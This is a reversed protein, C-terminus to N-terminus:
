QGTEEHFWKVAVRELIELWTVNHAHLDRTLQKVQSAVWYDQRSPKGKSQALVRVVDPQTPPAKHKRLYALIAAELEPRFTRSPQNRKRGPGRQGEHRRQLQAVVRKFREIGSVYDTGALVHMFSTFSDALAGPTPLHHLARLSDLAHEAESNLRKM